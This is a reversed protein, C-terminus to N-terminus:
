GPNGGARKRLYDDLSTIPARAPPRAPASPAPSTARVEVRGITVNISPAALDERAQSRPTATRFPPPSQSIARFERPKGRDLPRPSERRILEIVKQTRVETVVSQPLSEDAPEIRSSGPADREPPRTETHHESTVQQETSQASPAPQLSALAVPAREGSTPAVPARQLSAPAVLVSASAIEARAQPAPERMTEIRSFRASGIDHPPVVTTVERQEEAAFFRGSNETPFNYITELQPRVASSGRVSREVLKSLFDSM